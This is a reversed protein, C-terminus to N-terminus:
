SSQASQHAGLRPETGKCLRALNTRHRLIVLAALLSTVILFPGSSSFRKDILVGGLLLYIPLSATAVVSALSVYRFLCLLLGWTAVAALSPVALMPWFGFLVGLSTAVGKGGRFKLWPPFVHGVVAAAAVTLWQWALGTSLATSGACCMAIGGVLVPVFGKLVDLGFCWVGWPRGLARSVNTAGVNGSGVTRIDLGHSKGILFAFPISGCLYSLMAWCWWSEWLSM